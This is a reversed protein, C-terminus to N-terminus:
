NSLYEKFQEFLSSETTNIRRLIEGTKNVFAGYLYGLLDGKVRNQRYKYIVERYTKIFEDIYDFKLWESSQKRTAYTLRNWVKFITQANNYHSSIANIFQEPINSSVYEHSYSEIRQKNHNNTKSSHCNEQHNLKENNPPEYEQEPIEETSEFRNFVYVNSSQSGNKRTTSHISLIGLNKAITIMRKFTSRSIGGLEKKDHTAKVITGISATCVGAVKCCFKSLRSLAVYQSMTFNDKVEILWQELNNNFDKVSDFNSFDNFQEIKDILM